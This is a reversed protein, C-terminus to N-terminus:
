RMRAALMAADRGFPLCWGRWRRRFAEGDLIDEFCVEHNDGLEGLATVFMHADGRLNEVLWAQVDELGVGTRRLVAPLIEAHVPVFGPECPDHQALVDIFAMPDTYLHLRGPPFPSPPM